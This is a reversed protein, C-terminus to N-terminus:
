GEDTLPVFWFAGRTFTSEGAGLIPRSDALLHLVTEVRGPAFLQQVTTAMAFSGRPLPRFPVVASHFHGRLEGPGSQSFPRVFPALVPSTARTAVGVVLATSRAHEPESTMSLWDRAQPHGFPDTGAPIDVPSRRLAAGVLGDTEGILVMGVARTESQDLCAEALKSLAISHNLPDGKAEFRVFRASRNMVFAMGYLV